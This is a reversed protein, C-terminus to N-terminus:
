RSPSRRGGSGRRRASLRLLGAFALAELGLAGCGGGGGGGGGGPVAEEAAATQPAASPDNVVTFRVTLSTGATGGAASATYPTATLSHSGVSPTWPNYNGSTDGALAYPPTNEVRYNPNADYGFKVSGVPFPSTDARVNLRSVSALNVTDGDTLPGLDVDTDANVLTFGTVSQGTGSQGDTVTFRVTLPTGATGTAGSGSFPTAVVTHSGVAPTFGAGGQLEYPPSNEVRYNPNADYGFKVSGVTAPSTTARIDVTRSPLTALNITAGDALPGIDQHTSANVLTFATVSMGTGGSAPPTWAGYASRMAELWWKVGADPHLTKVNANVDAINSSGGPNMFPGGIGESPACQLWTSAMMYGSYQNIAAKAKAIQDSKMESTYRGIRIYNYYGDLKSYSGWYGGTAAPSGETEIWPKGAVKPSHHILLDANSPPTASKNYAVPISPDVAHAASIMQGIDWGKAKSAMGENDPDVFVNRYGNNKLWRVTNAVAANAQSQGWAGLDESARSTSWYLCGVLVVMGRADAAEVIRGMRAAYTPDLTADPRYGKVDGFRSGMFYVSVTNMGYSKFVNLNDILEQTDADSVLANSVRLGIVKFPQGNLLVRDGSVSFVYRGAARGPFSAGTLLAFGLLALGFRV